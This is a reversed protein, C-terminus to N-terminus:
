FHIVGQPTCHFVEALGVPANNGERGKLWVLRFGGMNTPWFISVLPQFGPNDVTARGYWCPRLYRGPFRLHFQLTPQRTMIKEKKKDHIMLQMGRWRRPQRYQAGDLFAM